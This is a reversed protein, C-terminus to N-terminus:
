DLAAVHEASDAAPLKCGCGAGGSLETLAASAARTGEPVSATSAPVMEFAM